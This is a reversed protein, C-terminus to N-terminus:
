DESKACLSYLKMVILDNKERSCHRPIPYRAELQLISTGDNKTMIQFSCKIQKSVGETLELNEQLMKEAIRPLDEGWKERAFDSITINEKQPFHSRGALVEYTENLLEKTPKPIWRGDITEFYVTHLTIRRLYGNTPGDISMFRILVHLRGLYLNKLGIQKAIYAIFAAVGTVLVAKNIEFGQITGLDAGYLAFAYIVILVAIFRVALINIITPNGVKKMYSNFRYVRVFRGGLFILISAVILLHNLKEVHDILTGSIKDARILLAITLAFCASMVVVVWKNILAKEISKISKARKKLFIDVIEVQRARRLFSASIIACILLVIFSWVESGFHQVIISEVPEFSEGAMKSTESAVEQIKEVLTNKDDAVPRIRWNQQLHVIM